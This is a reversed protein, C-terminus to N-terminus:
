EQRVMLKLSASLGTTILMIVAMAMIGYTFGGTADKFVGMMYPGVFGGFTGISNIFAIGGAAGAGTLMRPPIAWFIGRAATIGVLALSLDILSFLLSGSLLYGALGAVGLGLAITMNAIKKGTRDVHRAWLLMGATAFIYPVAVLFGVAANSLGYEKFILPLWIGVGYSGLTFGFQVVALLIVRSDTLAGIISSKPRDHTEAAHMEAIADIEERTLWSADQPREPLVKLVVLGLVAAPWSVMIFMWKWGALGLIGDMGLLLGSIPAGILSSLPIAALFWALIRTRYERPFWSALYFTVGPFFGAEAVGLLFRMAYLSEANKVLAMAASVLGWAVLIIAIWVRAGFRYLAINSPVECLTYSLFFWGAAAGFQTATLGLDKNMTLAAFGISNRDLYSFLYALTLLPVLRWAAKRLASDQVPTFITEPRRGASVAADYATQSM